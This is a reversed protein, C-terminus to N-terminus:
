GGQVKKIINNYKSMPAGQANTNKDGLLSITPTTRTFTGTGTNPTKGVTFPKAGGGGGGGGRKKTAGKSRDGLMGFLSMGLGSIFDLTDDDTVWDVVDDWWSDDDDGSAGASWDDYGYDYSPEEWNYDDSVWSSEQDGGGGYDIDYTDEYGM